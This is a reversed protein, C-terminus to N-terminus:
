KIIKLWTMHSNTIYLERKLRENHREYNDVEAEKMRFLQTARVLEAATM